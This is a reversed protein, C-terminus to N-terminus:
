RKIANSQQEEPVKYSVQIMDKDDFVISPLNNAWGNLTHGEGLKDFLHREVIELAENMSMSFHVLNKKIM